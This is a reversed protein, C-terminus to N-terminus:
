FITVIDDIIITKETQAVLATPDLEIIPPYSHLFGLCHLEQLSTAINHPTLKKKNVKLNYSAVFNPCFPLIKMHNSVINMIKNHKDIEFIPIKSKDHYSENIRYHSYTLKNDILSGKGLGNTSYFEIAYQENLEMKTEILSKEDNNHTEKYDLSIFKGGHIKWQEINHSYVNSVLKLPKDNVEYSLIMENAIDSLSNLRVDIGCSKIVNNVIENSAKVLITSEPTNAFDLTFAADIIYGNLQVGYDVKLLKCEKLTTNPNLYYPLNSIHSKPMKFPTYHAVISDVSLGIPFALGTDIITNSTSKLNELKTLILKEIMGRLELLTIDTALPQKLLNNIHYEVQHHITSAHQLFEM